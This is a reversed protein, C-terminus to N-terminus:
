GDPNIISKIAHYTCVCIIAVGIPIQIWACVTKVPSERSIVLYFVPPLIYIIASITVGGIFDFMTGVNKVLVAVLIVAAFVVTGLIRWFAPSPETKSILDHLAVRAAYFLLPATVLLFLAYLGETIYTFIRGEPYWDFIVQGGVPALTLYPLLGGVIFCVAAAGIVAAMTAYQRGRTRQILRAITPGTGPHCHFAFAQTSLAPIFFKNFKFYVFDSRPGITGGRVGKVFYTISHALYTAILLCTFMSVQSYGRVQRLMTLPLCVLVSPVTILLWRNFYWPHDSSKLGKVGRVLDTVLNYWFQLHLATGGFLTLFILVVPVWELKPNCLRMLKTYDMTTKGKISADILLVFSFFAFGAIALLIITNTGVGANYCYPISLLGIGIILNMLVAWARFASLNGPSESSEKQLEDDTLLLTASVTEQSKAASDEWSM